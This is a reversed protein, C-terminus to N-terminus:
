KTDESEVIVTEQLGYHEVLRDFEGTAMWIILAVLPDESLVNHIVSQNRTAIALMGPEVTLSEGDVIHELRGSLVYFVEDVPHQHSSCQKDACTKGDGGPLNLVAIELGDSGLSASTLLLRLNDPGGSSAQRATNSGLPVESHAHASIVNCGLLGMLIVTVVRM